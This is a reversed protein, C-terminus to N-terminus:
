VLVFNGISVINRPIAEDNIASCSFLLSISRARIVKLRHDSFVIYSVRSRHHQFGALALGDSNVNVSDKKNTFLM